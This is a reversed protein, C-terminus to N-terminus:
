MKNKLKQLYRLVFPLIIEDKKHNKQQEIALKEQFAQLYCNAYLIEISTTSYTSYCYKTCIARVFVVKASLSMSTIDLNPLPLKPSTKLTRIFDSPRKTAMFVKRSFTERSVLSANTLSISIIAAMHWSLTTRHM